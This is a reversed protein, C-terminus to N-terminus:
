QAIFRYVIEGVQKDPSSASATFRSSKAARVAFERLCADSSSANNIHLPM